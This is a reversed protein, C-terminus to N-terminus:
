KKFFFELAKNIFINQENNMCKLESLLILSFLSNQLSGAVAAYDDETVEAKCTCTSFRSQISM